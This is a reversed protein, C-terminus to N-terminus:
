SCNTQLGVTSQSYGFIWVTFGFDTRYKWGVNKKGDVFNENLFVDLFTPLLIQLHFTVCDVNGSVQNQMNVDIEKCDLLRNVM